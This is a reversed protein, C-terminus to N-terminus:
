KSKIQFYNQLIKILIGLYTNEIQFNCTLKVTYEPWVRLFSWSFSLFPSFWTGSVSNETFSPFYHFLFYYHARSSNWESNFITWFRFWDVQKLDNWLMELANPVQNQFSFCCFLSAMMIYFLWFHTEFKLLIQFFRDDM